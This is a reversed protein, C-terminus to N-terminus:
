TRAYERYPLDIAPAQGPSALWQWLQPQTLVGECLRLLAEGLDTSEV